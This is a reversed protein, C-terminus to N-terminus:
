LPFGILRPRYFPFGALYPDGSDALAWIAANPLDIGIPERAPTLDKLDACFLTREEFPLGLEGMAYFCAMWLTRRDEGIEGCRQCAEGVEGQNM